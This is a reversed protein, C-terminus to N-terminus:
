LMEGKADIASPPFSQPRYQAKQAVRASLRHDQRHDVPDVTSQTMTRLPDSLVTHVSM